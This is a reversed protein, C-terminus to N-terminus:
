KALFDIFWLIKNKIRMNMKSNSYFNGNWDLLLKVYHRIPISLLFFGRHFSKKGPNRFRLPCFVPALFTRLFVRDIAYGYTMRSALLWSSRLGRPGEQVFFDTRRAWGPQVCRKAQVPLVMPERGISFDRERMSIYPHVRRHFKLQHRRKGLWVCTSM